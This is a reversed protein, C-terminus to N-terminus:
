APGGIAAHEAVRAAGLDAGVRPNLEFADAAADGVRGRTGQDGERAASTETRLALSLPQVM